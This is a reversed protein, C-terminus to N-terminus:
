QSVRNRNGAVQAVKNRNGTVNAVQNVTDRGGKQDLEGVLRAVEERFAPDAELAEELEVELAGRRREDDPKAELRSLANGVDGGTLKAKVTDWLKVVRNGVEGGVKEALAGSAKAVLYTGAAVTLEAVDMMGDVELSGRMDQAEGAQKYNSATSQTVRSFSSAGSLMTTQAVVHRFADPGVVLNEIFSINITVEKGKGQQLEALAYLEAITQSKDM